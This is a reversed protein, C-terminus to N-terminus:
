GILNLMSGSIMRQYSFARALTSNAAEMRVRNRALEYSELAMDAAEIRAVTRDTSEVAVAQARQSSELRNAIAGARSQYRNVTRLADDIDVMLQNAKAITDM